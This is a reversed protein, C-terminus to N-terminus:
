EMDMEAICVIYGDMNMSSGPEGGAARLYIYALDFSSEVQHACFEDIARQTIVDLAPIGAM